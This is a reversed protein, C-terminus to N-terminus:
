KLYLADRVKEWSVIVDNELDVGLDNPIAVFFSYVLDADAGMGDKNLVKVADIVLTKKSGEEKVYVDQVRVDDIGGGSRFDIMLLVNEKLFAKNDYRALARLSDSLAAIGAMNELRWNGKHNLFLDSLGDFTEHLDAYYGDLMGTEQIVTIKENEEGIFVYNGVCYGSEFPVKTVKDSAETEPTASGNAPASKGCSVLSLIMASLLVLSLIKIKM